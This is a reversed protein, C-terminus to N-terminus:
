RTPALEGSCGHKQRKQRKQRASTTHKHAAPPALSPTRLMLKAEVELFALENTGSTEIPVVQAFYTEHLDLM